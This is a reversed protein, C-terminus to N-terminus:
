RISIPITTPDGSENDVVSAYAWVSAGPTTLEVTAYGVLCRQVNAQAFVDNIQMWRGSPVSGSVVNGIPTGTEDFLKVRVMATVGGLNVFGINCRFQTSKKTQTLIGIDGHDLADEQTVAPMFQGFTGHDSQNYTRASVVIDVDSVVEIVGATSSELGFVDLAVDNWEVASQGYLTANRSETGGDFRYTLQLEADDSTPNSVNLASRWTSGGSGDAHAIGGVLYHFEDPGPNGEQTVTLRNGEITITATRAEQNNNPGV